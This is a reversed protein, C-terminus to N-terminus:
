FQKTMNGPKIVSPSRSIWYSNVNSDFELKLPQKGCARMLLGIPSIVGFFILGMILPSFFRHLIQGFEFWLRNIQALLRPVLMSTAFFLSALVLAWVQIGGESWYPMLGVLLFVITFVFGFSRDSGRKVKTNQVFEEHLSQQTM